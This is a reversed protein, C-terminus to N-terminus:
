KHVQPRLRSLWMLGGTYAVVLALVSLGVPGLELLNWIM